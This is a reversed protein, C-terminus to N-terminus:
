FLGAKYGIVYLPTCKSNDLAGGNYADLIELYKGNPANVLRYRNNVAYSLVTGYSSPVIGTSMIRNGVSGSEFKAQTYLIEYCDYNDMTERLEIIQPTFDNTPFKNSWLIKGKINNIETKNENILSLIDKNLKENIM